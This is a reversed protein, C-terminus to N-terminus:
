HPLARQLAGGAPPAVTAVKAANGRPARAVLVGAWFWLWENAAIDGSFQANVFSYVLMAGVALVLSRESGGVTASGAPGAVDPRAAGPAGCARHTKWDRWRVALSGVLFLMAALGLLGNELVSEILLNHPYVRADLHLVLRSFGGTGFGLWGAGQVYERAVYLLKTRIRNSLTMELSSVGGDASWGGVIAVAAVTAACALVIGWRRARGGAALMWFLVACSLALIPGRSFAALFIWGLLFLAPLFLAVPMRGVRWLALAALIGLGTHRALWIPNLGAAGLRTSPAGETDSRAVLGLVAVILQFVLLSAFFRRIRRHGEPPHGDDVRLSFAAALFLLANNALYFLTKSAGYGPSPTWLLGAALVLGVAVVGLFIPDFLLRRVSGPASTLILGVLVLRSFLYVSNEIEWPRFLTLFVPMGGMVAALTWARYFSLIGIVLIAAAALAIQDARELTVLLLADVALLVCWLIRSTGRPLSATTQV